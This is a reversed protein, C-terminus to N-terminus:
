NLSYCPPLTTPLCANMLAVSYWGGVSLVHAIKVDLCRPVTSALDFLSSNDDEYVFLLAYTHNLVNMRM